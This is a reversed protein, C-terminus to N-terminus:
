HRVRRRPRRSRARARQCVSRASASSALSSSITSSDFAGVRVVLALELDNVFRVRGVHAVLALEVDYQVVAFRASASSALSSSSTSSAARCRTALGPGDGRRRYGVTLPAGHPWCGSRAKWSTATVGFELRDDRPKEVRDLVTAAAALESPSRACWFGVGAGLSSATTKVGLDLLVRESGERTLRRLVVTSRCEPPRAQLGCRFFRAPHKWASARIRSVSASASCRLAELWSAIKGKPWRPATTNLAKSALDPNDTRTTRRYRTYTGHADRADHMDNADEIGAAGGLECAPRWSSPASTICHAGLPVTEFEEDLKADKGRLQSVQAAEIHPRHQLLEAAEAAPIWLIQLLREFQRDVLVVFSSSFFSSRHPPSSNEYGRSLRHSFFAPSFTQIKAETSRSRDVQAPHRGVFLRHHRKAVVM